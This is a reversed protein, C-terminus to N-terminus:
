GDFGFSKYLIWTKLLTHLTAVHWISCIWNARQVFWLPWLTTIGSFPSLHIHCPQVNLTGKVNTQCVECACWTSDGYIGISPSKVNDLGVVLERLEIHYKCCCTNWQKMYKVFWPTFALFHILEIQVNPNTLKFLTFFNLQLVCFSLKILFNEKLFFRLSKSFTVMIKM